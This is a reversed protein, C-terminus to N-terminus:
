RDKKSHGVYDKTFHPFVEAISIATSRLTESLDPEEYKDPCVVETAKCNHYDALWRYKDRIRSDSSNREMATEISRKHSQLEEIQDMSDLHITHLIYTQVEM